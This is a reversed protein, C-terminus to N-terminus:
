GFPAPRHHPMGDKLQNAVYFGISFGVPSGSEKLSRKVEEPDYRYVKAAYSM